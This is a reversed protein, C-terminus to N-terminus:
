GYHGKCSIIVIAEEEVAYVIRHEENIRRSWFGSLKHKLGEPKGKGEFPHRLIDITLENIKQAIAKNKTQWECYDEWADADWQLNRKAM